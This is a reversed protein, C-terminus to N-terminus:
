RVGREGVVTEYGEPFSSIFDHCNALKAVETVEELSAVADEEIWDSEVENNAERWQDKGAALRSYIINSRISGSFLVPEQPVIAINRHLWQPNLKQLDYGDITLKGGLIDYFREILSLVTSKGSGSAGVLAITQKPYITLSFDKLVPVDLRSPYAFTINELKILGQCNDNPWM